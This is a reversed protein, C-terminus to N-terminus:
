KHKTKHLPAGEYSTPYMNGTVRSMANSAM